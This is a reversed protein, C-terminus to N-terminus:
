ESDSLIRNSNNRSFPAHSSKKKQKAEESSTSPGGQQESLERQHSKKKFSMKMINQKRDDPGGPVGSGAEAKVATSLSAPGYHHKFGADKSFLEALTKGQEESKHRKLAHHHHHHGKEGEKSSSSGPHCSFSRKLGTGVKRPGRKGENEKPSSRREKRGKDYKRATKMMREVESLHEEESNESDSESASSSSDNRFAQRIRRQGPISEASGKRKRRRDDRCGAGDEDSSSGVDLLKLRYERLEIIPERGYPQVSVKVKKGNGRCIWGMGAKDQREQLREQRSRVEGKEEEGKEDDTTSSGVNKESPSSSSSEDKELSPRWQADDDSTDHDLWNDEGPMRHNGPCASTCVHNEDKEVELLHRRQRRQRRRAEKGLRTKEDSTAAEIAVQDVDSKLRKVMRKRKAELDDPVATKLTSIRPKAGKLIHSIEDSEKEEEQNNKKKDENEDSGFLDEMVSGKSSNGGGPQLTSRRETEDGCKGEKMDTSTKCLEDKNDDFDRNKNKQPDEASLKTTSM